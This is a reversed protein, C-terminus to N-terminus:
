EKGSIFDLLEQRTHVDLKAYVARLHTRVTNKSICLNEAIWNASRGQAFLAMVELERSSLGYLPLAARGYPQQEQASASEPAEPHGAGRDPESGAVCDPAADPCDGPSSVAASLAVSGALDKAHQVDQSSILVIDKMVNPPLIYLAMVVVALIMGLNAAFVFNESSPLSAFLDGALWGASSCAFYVAQGIGFVRVASLSYRFALYALLVSFIMWLVEKGISLYTISLGVSSAVMVAIGFVVLATYADTVSPAAGRRNASWVIALAILGIVFTAVSGQDTFGTASLLLSSAGKEFGATFAVVGAAAVVRYRLRSSVKVEEATPTATGAPLAFLDDGPLALLLAALLPLVATFAAGWEAPLAVGTFYLLAALVLSLCGAILSEALAVSGYLGGARLCVSSTGLGTLIAALAFLAQSGCAGSLEVLLTAGSALAACALVFSRKSILAGMRKFSVAALLMALAIAPTSLLYMQIVYDTQAGPEFFGTVVTSSYCLWIWAWWAGLGLFRLNPWQEELPRAQVEGRSQATLVM